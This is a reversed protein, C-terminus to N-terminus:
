EKVSGIMMGKVFYKQLFPYLGIIPLISFIIISYKLQEQYSATEGYSLDGLENVMRNTEGSVLIRVLYLQLPQKNSDMIYIMASFYSNWYHVAGYLAVVAIIPLSLPLVIRLLIGIHRCGDIKASEILSAPITKLFTRAIIIYWVSVAGPLVLAWLSNILGLNKILLYSPIMGGSFFMTFTFFIMLFRRFPMEERSLPYAALLTTVINLLTGVVVIWITNKLKIWIETSQFILKYSELSFGIPFVKVKGSVVASPDSVSMSFVYLFPYFTIIITVISIMVVAIDLGIESKKSKLKYANPKNLAVTKTVM